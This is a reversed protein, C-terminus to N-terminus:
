LPIKLAYCIVSRGVTWRQHRQADNLATLKAATCRCRKIYKIKQHKYKVPLRPCKMTVVKYYALIPTCVACSEFSNEDGSLPIYVSNCQGFCYNNHVQLPRCGDARVVQNLLRTKCWDHRFQARRMVFLPQRDAGTDEKLVDAPSPFFLGSRAVVVESLLLSVIWALFGNM